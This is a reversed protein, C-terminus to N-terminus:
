AADKRQEPVGLLIRSWGSMSRMRNRYQKDLDLMIQQYNHAYKWPDGGYFHPTHTMPIGCFVATDFGLDILAVKAAFLGSSGSRTQGPFRYDTFEMGPPLNGKSENIRWEEHGFYRKADPYGNNARSQRWGKAEFYNPHLSVWADLEGPWEAGAENCAIVGDIQGTYADLDAHLCDAGGLVLCTTM